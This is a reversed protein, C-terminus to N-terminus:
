CLIEHFYPSTGDCNIGVGSSQSTARVRILLKKWSSLAHPSTKLRTELLSPERFVRKDSPILHPTRNRGFRTMSMLPLSPGWPPRSPASDNTLERTLAVPPVGLCRIRVPSKRSQESNYMPFGFRNGYRSKCRSLEASDSEGAGTDGTEDIQCLVLYRYLFRVWACSHFASVRLNTTRDLAM